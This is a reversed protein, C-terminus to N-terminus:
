GRGRGRGGRGRGNGRGFTETSQRHAQREAQVAARAVRTAANRIAYRVPVFAGENICNQCVPLVTRFLSTLEDDVMGDEMACFCCLKNSLHQRSNPGASYFFPEVHDVFTLTSQTVFVDSFVHDPDIVSAGCVFTSSACADHLVQKAMTQCADVEEPTPAHGDHIPPVM